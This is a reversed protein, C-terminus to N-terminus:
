ALNLFSARPSAMLVTEMCLTLLSCQGDQYTGALGSVEPPLRWEEVVGQSTPHPIGPSPPLVVQQEELTSAVALALGPRAGSLRM